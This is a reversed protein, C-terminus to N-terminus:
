GAPVVLGKADPVTVPDNINVAAAAVAYLMAAEGAQAQVIHRLKVYAACATLLNDGGFLKRPFCPVANSLVAGPLVM